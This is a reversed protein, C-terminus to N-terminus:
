ARASVKASTTSSRALSTDRFLVAELFGTIRARVEVRNVAEIRGVFDATREIPRKQAPTTGVPIAQPQGPQAPQALAAQSPGLLTLGALLLFTAGNRPRRAPSKALQARMVLVGTPM